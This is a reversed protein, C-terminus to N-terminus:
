TPDAPLTLRHFSKFSGFRNHPYTSFLHHFEGVPLDKVVVELLVKVKDQPLSPVLPGHKGSGNTACSNPATLDGTYTMAASGSGPPLCQFYPVTDLQLLPRILSLQSPPSRLNIPVLLSFM